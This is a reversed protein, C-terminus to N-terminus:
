QPGRKAPGRTKTVQKVNPNQNSFASTLAFAAVPIGFVLLPTKWNKKPKQHISFNCTKCTVRSQPFCPVTLLMLLSLTVIRKV